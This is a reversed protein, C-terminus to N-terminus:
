ILFVFKDWMKEIRSNGRSEIQKEICFIKNNFCLPMFVLVLIFFDEATVLMGDFFMRLFLIANFVLVMYMKRKILVRLEKYIYYLLIGFGLLGMRRHYSLFSNHPNGSYERLVPLDQTDLGFILSTFDLNNFYSKWIDSRATEMGKSALSTLDYYDVISGWFYYVLSAFVVTMIVTLKKGRFVFCFITILVMCILSSRGDLFFAMITSLIPLILPFKRYYLYKWVAWLCNFIVLISGPYNKSLGYQLFIDGNITGKVFMEYYLFAILWLCLILTTTFFVKLNKLCSYTIGCVVFFVISGGIGYSTALINLLSSLFAIISFTQIEKCNNKFLGIIGPTAFITGGIFYMINGTMNYLFYLMIALILCITNILNRM